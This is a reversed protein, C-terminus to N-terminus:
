GRRRCSPRCRDRRTMASVNYVNQQCQACFRVLHDGVMEAWSADCASAVRLGNLLEAHRSRADNEEFSSPVPLEIRLLDHLNEDPSM